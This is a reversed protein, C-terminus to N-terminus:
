LVDATIFFANFLKSRLIAWQGDEFINEVIATM